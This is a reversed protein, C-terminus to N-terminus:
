SGCPPKCSNCNPPPCCTTPCPQSDCKPPNCCAAPCPPVPPCCVAPRNPRYCKPPTSIKPFEPGSGGGCSMIGQETRKAVTVQAKPTQTDTTTFLVSVKIGLIADIRKTIMVHSAHMNISVHHM